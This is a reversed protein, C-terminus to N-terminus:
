VILGRQNIKQHKTLSTVFSQDLRSLRVLKNNVLVKPDVYRFKKFVREGSIKEEIKFKKNRLIKLIKQVGQNSFKEVKNLIFKEDQFFDAERLVKQDIAVKLAKAFLDCRVIAEQSGWNETQLRLFNKAFVLAPQKALFIIENNRVALFKIIPKSIGPELWCEFERLGYDVRDACLNPLKSELLSFNQDDYIRATSFGHRKLIKPLDTKNIFQESIRDHYDEIGRKGEGFVWDAVHSFALHPVDHLLGAIQEELSAGLIKLLIMTGVSHEYRNFNKIFYYKDPVGFQSINKLRLLAPSKMLDLLVLESINIKGYVKDHIVM